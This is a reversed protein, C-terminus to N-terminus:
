APLFCALGLLVVASLLLGVSSWVVFRRYGPSDPGLLSERRKALQMAYSDLWSLLLLAPIALGTVFSYTAWSRRRDQAFRRAFVFCTATLAGFTILSAVEHLMGPVSFSSARGLAAGPPYGFSPDASFLGAGVLGVGYAGILFPGCTAGRGPRLACRLGVACSVM